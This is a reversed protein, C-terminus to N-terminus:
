PRDDVDGDLTGEEAARADAAASNQRDDDLDPDLPRDDDGVLVAPPGSGQGPLVGAGPLFGGNARDDDNRLADGDTEHEREDDHHTM